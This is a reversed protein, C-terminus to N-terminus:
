LACGCLDITKGCDLCREPADNASDAARELFRDACGVLGSRIARLGLDDAVAEIIKTAEALRAKLSDCEAAAAQLALEYLNM